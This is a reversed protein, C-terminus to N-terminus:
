HSQWVRVTDAVYSGAPDARVVCEYNRRVTERPSGADVTGSLRFREGDHGTLNSSFPFRAGPIRESVARECVREAAARGEADATPAPDSSLTAYLLALVFCCAAGALAYRPIAM